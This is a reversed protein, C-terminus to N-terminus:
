PFNMGSADFIRNGVLSGVSQQSTRSRPVLSSAVNEEWWACKLLTAVRECIPDPLPFLDSNPIAFSQYNGISGKQKKAKTVLFHIKTKKESESFCFWTRKGKINYIKGIFWNGKSQYQKTQKAPTMKQFLYM